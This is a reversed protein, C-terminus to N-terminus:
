VLEEDNSPKNKKVKKTKKKNNSTTTKPSLRLKFQGPNYNYERVSVKYVLGKVSSLTVTSKGHGCKGGEDDSAILRLDNCGRAFVDIVSDFDNNNMDNDGTCTSIIMGEGTGVFTFWASDYFNHIEGMTAQGLELPTAGECFTNPLETSESATFTINLATNYDYLYGNLNIRYTEGFSADWYYLRCVSATAYDSYSSGVYYLNNCEGQYIDAFVDGIYTNDNCLQATVFGAAGTYALSYWQNWYSNKLEVVLTEDLNLPTAGACITNPLDTVESLTITANLNAKGDWAYGYVSAHYTEGAETELYAIACGLGDHNGFEVFMMESCGGTYVENYIEANGKKKLCTEVAMYGGSGAFIFWPTPNMQVELSEGVQLPVASECTPTPPPIDSEDVELITIAFTDNGPSVTGMYSSVYVHYTEDHNTAFYAKSKYSACEYGSDDDYAIDMYYDCEGAFVTIATDLQNNDLVPNSGTCTTAALYGGTGVVSFWKGDEMYVNIKEEVVEGIQLPIANYCSSGAKQMMRADSQALPANNNNNNNNNNNGLRAAHSASVLAAFAVLVFGAKHFMTM